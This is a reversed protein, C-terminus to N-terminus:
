AKFCDRQNNNYNYPKKESPHAYHQNAHCIPLSSCKWDTHIWWALSFPFPPNKQSHWKLTRITIRIIKKRRCTICNYRTLSLIIIISGNAYYVIIKKKTTPWIELKDLLPHAGWHTQRSLCSCSQFFYANQWM